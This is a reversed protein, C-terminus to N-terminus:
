GRTRRVLGFQELTELIARREALRRARANPVGLVAREINACAAAYFCDRCVLDEARPLIRDLEVATRGGRSTRVHVCDLKHWARALSTCWTANQLPREQTQVGVESSSVRGHAVEGIREPPGPLWERLDVLAEPSGTLVVGKGLGTEAKLERFGREIWTNHQPTRPLNRLHIVHHMRLLAELEAEVNCPGNDSVWVLPWCGREEVTRLLMLVLEHGKAPPGIWVALNRTSAVDKVVQGEVSRGGNRGLHTADQSWMADRALVALHDRMRERRQRERRAAREKLASLSEQLLATPVDPKHLHMRLTRWGCKRTELRRVRAVKWLM